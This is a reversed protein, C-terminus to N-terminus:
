EINKKWNKASPSPLAKWQSKHGKTINENCQSHSHMHTYTNTDKDELMVLYELEDQVNGAGFRSDAMEKLLILESEQIIIDSVM